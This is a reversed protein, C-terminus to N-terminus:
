SGPDEIRAPKQSCFVDEEMYKWVAVCIAGSVRHERRCYDSRKAPRSCRLVVSRAIHGWRHRPSLQPGVRMVRPLALGFLGWWLTDSVLGPAGPTGSRRRNPPPIGGAPSFPRGIAPQSYDRYGANRTSAMRANRSVRSPFRSPFIRHSIVFHTCARRRTRSSFRIQRSLVSEDRM